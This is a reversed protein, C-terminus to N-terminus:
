PVSPTGTALYSEIFATWDTIATPNRTAVFHGDYGDPAYVFLGATRMTNDGSTVNLRVPRKTGAPLGSDLVVAGDRPLGLSAASADLTSAPTYTDKAGWSMWVHKSAIMGPPRKIILPNYNLPDSRDFFSQFITLVPHSDDLPEGLLFTLGAGINQPSTKDLLSHTLFSGHGSFIAAPATASVAVALAGSASGQSHGFFTVKTADFSVPGPLGMSAVDVSLGAIRYAQLIDVAGQLFNDRAARPNLPNFVLDNPSKTSAGKRAGHEVADWGFTASPTTATAMVKAIGDDVVSRMSGGTGHHYVMLPWGKAPQAMGKPVTLAFCVNETRDPQPVGGVEVIGGGEDPTDYPETGKQYVPVSFHGHIEWFDPNAPPCNRAPTGDDCPSVVGQDCVVLDKLVPAPQKAVSDALRQVHGPADQVTFVAAAAVSPATIGMGPNELWDRLPQYAQWAHMLTADAPATAALMATMDPDLTPSEGKASKIGTTLIAAYTHKPLLPTDTTNRVTMRHDCSYKTQGSEFLWNRAYEVQQAGPTVDVLLVNQSNDGTTTTDIDASFRFTTVGISSFGDFDAVWSDVYLQVLDVGLPTPGPRPFDTMDLAGATVRADNPFPLRFFDKPPAGPRPVEFYVRFPGEDQCKVGAFPPYAEAPPLCTKSPGCVLGALCDASGTCSAGSEVMGAKACVGYFGSFNCRLPATCVADTTCSDGEQLMGGMACQGGGDCFLGAACDRTATCKGGVMTMGPPQCAGAVCYDGPGCDINIKCMAGGGAPGSSSRNCSGAVVVCIGVGVLLARM